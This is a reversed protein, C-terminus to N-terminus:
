FEWRVGFAPLLPLWYDLGRELAPEGTADDEELDWDLCCENDRNTLNSVEIFATLRGHRLQWQRAIRADLSFYSDYRGSNRPGPVALYVNEGDDDVGDAELSLETLPWGTHLNAAVSFDWADRRWGLGAQFAHRQDWSRPEDRGDIHDVAESWTYSLGWHLEQVRRDLSIEIGQTEAGVPDLRIRDPQIEPILGLPDYLNEFRPRVSAMTKRFAEIRLAYPKDFAHTLGLIFHDARQAPWFTSIGDEVQLEHLDQAQHYRGWSLRLDTADGLKRLLVLRPSLQSDAAVGTYTQDDWRLGWELVTREGFRWRDAFYLAYAAGEPDAQIATTRTDPLGPYLASLGAYHAANAYDYSARGFKAEIGWHLVHRESGLYTFDQRFGTQNSVRRDRVFGVLKEEDALEGQRANDFSVVSLVTKSSLTESWSNDLQAWVQLNRTDSGAQELEEPQPELIIDIQDRAYLVNVALTTTPSWDAAVRAFVDYYAPSGYEPDIVLDLNGRRASLLWHLNARSGSTLLSTNFVSLGLETHGEPAPVLSEMLVMGSMRDGYRVPFGGTYVEVGDIARADIASFIGQYDRIHFPDFLRQGDLMIGIESEEGGRLHTKASVGSAAAGPLRQIARLPDDGIDPLSEITSADLRYRSSAVASPIEYRSASVAVVELPPPVAAPGTGTAAPFSPAARVVLYVGSESRVTLGHPALIERAIGVADASDPEAVVMLDLTVLNSSYVFPHGADSFSELVEAVARGEYAEARAGAPAALLGALLM